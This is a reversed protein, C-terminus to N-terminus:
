LYSAAGAPQPVSTSSKPAPVHYNLVLGGMLAVVFFFVVILTYWILAISKLNEQAIWPNRTWHFFVPKTAPKEYTASWSDVALDFFPREEDEVYRLGGQTLPNKWDGCRFDNDPCSCCDIGVAFFDYSGSQTVKSYIDGDVVIPAICYTRQRFYCGARSRDIAVGNSFLVRGADQVQQGTMASPDVGIYEQLNVLDYHTHIYGWYLHQGIVIALGLAVLKAVLTYVPWHMTEFIHGAQHKRYARVLTQTARGLFFVAVLFVLVFAFGPHHYRPWYMMMLTLELTFFLWPDFTSWGVNIHDFM